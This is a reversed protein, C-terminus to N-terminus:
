ISQSNRRWISNGAYGYGAKPQIKLSIYEDSKCTKGKETNAEVIIVKSDKNITGYNENSSKVRVTYQDVFVWPTAQSGTGSVKSDSKVIRM